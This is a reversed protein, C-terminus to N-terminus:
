STEDLEGTGMDQMDSMAYLFDMIQKINGATDRQSVAEKEFEHSVNNVTFATELLKDLILCINNYSEERVEQNGTKMKVAEERAECILMVLKDTINISDFSMQEINSLIREMRTLVAETSNETERIEM